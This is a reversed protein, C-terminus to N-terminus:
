VRVQPESDQQWQIRPTWRRRTSCSPRGTTRGFYFDDAWALFADLEAGANSCSRTVGLWAAFALRGKLEHRHKGVEAVAAKRGIMAM